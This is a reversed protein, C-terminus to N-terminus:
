VFTVFLRKIDKILVLRVFLNVFGSLLENFLFLIKAFHKINKLIKM